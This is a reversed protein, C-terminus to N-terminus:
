GGQQLLALLPGHFYLSYSVSTRGKTLMFALANGGGALPDTSAWYGLAVLMNADAPAFDRVAQWVLPEPYTDFAAAYQEAPQDIHNQFVAGGNAELQKTAAKDWVGYRGLTFAPSSRDVKFDFALDWVQKSALVIVAKAAAVRGADVGREHASVYAGRLAHILFFQEQTRQVEYLSNFPPDTFIKGSTHSMISGSSMQTHAMADVWADLFARSRSRRDDDGTAYGMAVADASWAEARGIFAGKGAPLANLAALAGGLGEYFKARHVEAMTELVRKAYPDNDGWVLLKLTRSFVIFHQDDWGDYGGTAAPQYRNDFNLVCEETYYSPRKGAANVAFDHGSALDTLYAGRWWRWPDDPWANFNGPFGNNFMVWPLSGDMNRYDEIRFPLGTVEYMATHQRNVNAWLVAQWFLLGDTVGRDIHEQGAVPWVDNIGTPGGNKQGMYSYPGDIVSSPTGAPIPSNNNIANFVGTKDAALTADIGSIFSCDPVLYGHPGWGACQRNRWSYTRLGDVTADQCVAWGKGGTHEIADANTASAFAFLAFRFHREKRQALVHMSGTPHPGIRPRVLKAGEVYTAAQFRETWVNFGAETALPSWWEFEQFHLNGMVELQPTMKDSVGAAWTLVCDVVPDDRSFTAWLIVLGFNGLTNPAGPVEPRMIGPIEVTTRAPGQRHFRIAQAGTSAAGAIVGLATDTALRNAFSVSYRNGFFDRARVGSGNVMAVNAVLLTSFGGDYTAARQQVDFTVRTGPTLALAVRDVQALIEVVAPAGDAARAVLEWQTPM